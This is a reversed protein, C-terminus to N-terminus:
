YVGAFNNHYAIFAWFAPRTHTLHQRRCRCDYPHSKIFRHRQKSIPAEAATRAPGGDAMYRGFRCFAPRDGKYPLPVPYYDIDGVFGEGKHYAVFIHRCPLLTELWARCNYFAAVQRPIFSKNSRGTGACYQLRRLIFMEVSKM